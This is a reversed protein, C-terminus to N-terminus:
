ILKYQRLIDEKLLTRNRPKNWVTFKKGLAVELMSFFLLFYSQAAEVFYFRVKPILFILFGLAFYPFNLLLIITACILAIFMIPGLIYTLVAQIVVGKSCKLRGNLLLSLYRLLVRVFQNARRLKICLKEKWNMPFFSYFKAEPLLIARYGKEALSILTGCDDSGTNYPDFAELVEKKYASFGGEFLLTSGNKSEGLKILNMLNLYVDESKTAWSQKSNLLVKPGSIAGVRPDALFPLSRRLIESPLFCDADSVIIVETDCHKLAFNLAASKGKRQNEVLVKINAEPHNKIFNKVIDLTGDTSNSDVVIVQVLERPYDIKNINQLKFGITKSENYTPILISVKPMYNEDVKLRWPKAANKKMLIFRLALVGFSLFCFIFWLLFIEIM